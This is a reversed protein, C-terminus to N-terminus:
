VPEHTKWTKKEGWGGGGGGRSVLMELGSWMEKHNPLTDLDWTYLLAERQRHEAAGSECYRLTVPRSRPRVSTCRSRQEWYTRIEAGAVPLGTMGVERTEVLVQGNFLLRKLTTRRRTRSIPEVGTSLPTPRRTLSHTLSLTCTRTTHCFPLNTCFHEDNMYCLIYRICM